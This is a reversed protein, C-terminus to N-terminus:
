RDACPHPLKQIRPAKVLGRLFAVELGLSLVLPGPSAPCARASVQVTGNASLQYVSLLPLCISQTVGAGAM